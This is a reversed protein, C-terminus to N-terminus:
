SEGVRFSRSGDRCEIPGVIPKESDCVWTARGHETSVTITQHRSRGDLMVIMANAIECDVDDLEFVYGLSGCSSAGHTQSGASPASDEAGGCGAAAILGTIALLAVVTKV